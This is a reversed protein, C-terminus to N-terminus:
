GESVVPHELPSAAMGYAAPVKWPRQHTAPALFCVPADGQQLAYLGSKTDQLRLLM